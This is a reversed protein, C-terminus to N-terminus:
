QWSVLWARSPFVIDFGVSSVFCSIVRLLQPRIRSHRDARQFVPSVQKLIAPIIALRGFRFSASPSFRPTSSKIDSTASRLPNKFSNFCAEFYPHPRSAKKLWTAAGIGELTPPRPPKPGRVEDM